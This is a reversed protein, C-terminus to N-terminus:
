ANIQLLVQHHVAGNGKTVYKIDEGGGLCLAPKFFFIEEHALKGLKEVAAKYLEERLVDKRIGEDLIYGEFFEEYSDTCVVTERYHVDLLCVDNESDSLKRFYFIDGFATVVLPIKNFDQEGLWSYLSNMYDRPDVVKILGDGYEGFGYEKWFEVIPKPLMGEGFRLLEDDPKTLNEGPKYAEIFANMVDADGGTENNKKLKDLLGM